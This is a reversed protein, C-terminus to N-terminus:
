RSPNTGDYGCDPQLLPENIRIWSWAFVSKYHYTCTRDDFRHDKGNGLQVVNFVVMLTIVIFFLVCSFGVLRKIYGDDGTGFMRQM